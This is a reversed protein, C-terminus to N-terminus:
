KAFARLVAEHNAKTEEVGVGFYPSYLILNDALEEYEVHQKRVDDATGALALAAVMEETVANIMAPIDRRGFAERIAAVERGFGLPM